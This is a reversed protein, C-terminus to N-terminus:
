ISQSLTEDEEEKREEQSSAKTESFLYISQEVDSKNDQIDHYPGGRADTRDDFRSCM